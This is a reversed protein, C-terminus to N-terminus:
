TNKLCLNYMNKLPEYKASAELSHHYKVISMHYILIGYLHFLKRHPFIHSNGSDMLNTFMERLTNKKVIKGLCRNRRNAFMEMPWIDLIAFECVKHCAFVTCKYLIIYYKDKIQVMRIDTVKEQPLKFCSNGKVKLM